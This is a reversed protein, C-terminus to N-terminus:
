NYKDIATVILITGNEEKFTVKISKNDIHRFANKRGKISDEVKEPKVVTSKVEDETINRWKM